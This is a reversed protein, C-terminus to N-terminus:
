NSFEEVIEGDAIGNARLWVTGDLSSSVTRVSGDGLTFNMIGSHNSSFEYWNDEGLLWSTSAPLSVASIWLYTAQETSSASGGRNEGFALTNSLGDPLSGFKTKSRNRFVGQWKGGEVDPRGHCAAYNTRGLSEVPWGSSALGVFREATVGTSTPSSGRIHCRTWVAAPSKADSPCMLMPLKYQALDWPDTAGQLLGLSTNFWRLDEGSQVVRQVRVLDSPFQSYLANQEMFPLLYVFVSYYQQNGATSMTMYPDTRPPGLYGPPLQKYASEFNHMALGLQKLNNQCSMRRAAERAAQVAPLLLGVLIGIIAIVVLLEVLTFGRFRRTVRM